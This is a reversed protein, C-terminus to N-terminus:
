TITPPKHYRKQMLPYADGLESSPSSPFNIKMVRGRNKQLKNLEKDAEKYGQKAANKLYYIAKEYNKKDKNPEESPYAKIAHILYYAYMYEFYPEKLKAGEELIDIAKHYGDAGLGIRYHMYLKKRAETNNQEALKEYKKLDQRSLLYPENPSMRNIYGITIFVILSLILFSVLRYVIKKM